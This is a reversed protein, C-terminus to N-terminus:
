QNDRTVIQVIPGDCAYYPARFVIKHGAAHILNQVAISHHANLNDMTFCYSREPMGPGLDDLIEQIFPLFRDNTTGGDLWLSRWRRSPAEPTGVEGSIAMLLTWKESKSYPGKENVRVGVYAKGTSRNATELFIGCEDLDILDQVRVDAIGHPFPLNWYNWRKQLNVPYFAQHATTSSKKRSLGLAKEAKFLQSPSYFRFRPDGMNARYMFANIEAHTARPLVVRYLALLVLDHGRLVSGRRNGNRRYPRCHGLEDVMKIWRDCTSQSPFEGNEQLNRILPNNLEGMERIQIVASRMDQSYPEGYKNSPHPVAPIIQRPPRVM